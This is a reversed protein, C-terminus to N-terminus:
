QFPKFPNKAPRTGACVVGPTPIQSAKSVNQLEPMYTANLKNEWESGAQDFDKQTCTGRWGTKCLDLNRYPLPRGIHVRDSDVAWVKCQMPLPKGSMPNRAWCKNIDEDCIYNKEPMGAHCTNCYHIEDYIDHSMESNFMCRKWTSSGRDCMPSLQYDCSSKIKQGGVEKFYDFSDKMLSYYVGAVHKAWCLWDNSLETNPMLKGIELIIQLHTIAFPFQFVIAGKEQFERCIKGPKAVPGTVAQNVCEHGFVDNILNTFESERSTWFAFKASDSLLKCEETTYQPKCTSANFPALYGPMDALEGMATALKEQVNLLQSEVIEQQFMESVEKEWKWTQHEIDYSLQDWSNFDIAQLSRTEV